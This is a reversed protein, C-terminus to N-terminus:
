GPSRRSVCLAGLRGLHPDPQGRVRPGTRLRDATEQPDLRPSTRGGGPRDRRPTRRRSRSLRMMSAPYFYIPASWCQRGPEDGRGYETISLSSTNSPSRTVRPGGRRPDASFRRSSSWVARAGGRDRIRCASGTTTPYPHDRAAHSPHRSRAKQRQDFAGGCPAPRRSGHRRVRDSTRSVFPIGSDPSRRRSRGGMTALAPRRGGKFVFMPAFFRRYAAQSRALVFGFSVIRRRSRPIM